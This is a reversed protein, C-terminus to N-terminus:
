SFLCWCWLESQLTQRPRHGYSASPPWPGFPTTPQQHCDLDALRVRRAAFPWQGTHGLVLYLAYEATHSQPWLSRYKSKQKRPTTAAIRRLATAKQHWQFGATRVGIQGSQSWFDGLLPSECCLHDTAAAQDSQGADLAYALREVVLLNKVAVERWPWVWLVAM